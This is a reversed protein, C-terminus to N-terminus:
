GVMKRNGKGHSVRGLLVDVIMPYSDYVRGNLIRGNAKKDKGGWQKFLFPINNSESQLRISDVWAAKIPRSRPGSEGGVIIWHIGALNLVGLDELLPEISLFRNKIPTEQLTKIRPIGHQINEVTVGWFVNSLSAYESLPGSLLEAMRDARKTLVQFIHHDATRMVECCEKIYELPIEKHFLDSMSNVFILRGKKWKFPLNLMHPVIKLKFGQEFPHGPVGRFRNTFAEAYCNVCGPSVKSCGRVPNWTSDTWEITSQIAM